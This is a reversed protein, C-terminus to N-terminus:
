KNKKLEEGHQIHLYVFFSLSETEREREREGNPQTSLYSMSFQNTYIVFQCRIAAVTHELLGSASKDKV